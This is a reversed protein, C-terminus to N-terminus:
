PTVVKVAVYIAMVILMLADWAILPKYKNSEPLTSFYDTTIWILVCLVMLFLLHVLRGLIIMLSSM